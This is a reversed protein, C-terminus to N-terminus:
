KRLKPDLADRLAEGILNMVSVTFFIAIGPMLMTRLNHFDRGDKLIRGWSPAELDSVGLFSLSAEILIANGVGFAAAVLVPGMANPLIHRFIVRRTKLGSAIAAQVFDASKLKLFEGRVLRAVTTWRTIGIFFMIWFISKNPLLSIFSLILIFSPLSMFVEILRQIAIDVRGGFYGALAGLLTGIFVFISVAIVGITLSIRTGYLMRVFQDRGASDTGLYHENNPPRNVHFSVEDYAFDLLPFQASVDCAEVALGDAAPPCADAIVRKWDEVATQPQFVLLLVFVTMLFGASLGLFKARRRARVQGTVGRLGWTRYLLYVPLFVPLGVLLLNFFIDIGKSFVNENLLLGELWPYHTEGDVTIWFPQDLSILPACIAIIALLGLLYLSVYGVKNKKFQGWVIEGYTPESRKSKNQQENAM